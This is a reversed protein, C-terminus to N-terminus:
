DGGHEARVLLVSVEIFRVHSLEDLFVWGSCDSLKGVILLETIPLDM